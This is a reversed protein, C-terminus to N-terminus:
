LYAKASESLRAAMNDPDYHKITSVQHAAGWETNFRLYESDPTTRVLMLRAAFASALEEAFPLAYEAFDSGDLPVIINEFHRPAVPPDKDNCRVILTPNGSARVVKATVSGM